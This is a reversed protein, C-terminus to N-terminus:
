TAIKVAYRETIERMHFQLRIFFQVKGQFFYQGLDAIKLSIIYIASVLYKIEKKMRSFYTVCASLLYKTRKIMSLCSSWNYRVIFRM